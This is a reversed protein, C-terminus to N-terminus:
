HEEQRATDANVERTLRRRRDNARKARKRDRDKRRREAELSEGDRFASWARVNFGAEPQHRLMM